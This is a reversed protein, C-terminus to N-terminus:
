AFVTQQTIGDNSSKEDLRDCYIGHDSIRSNSDGDMEKTSKENENTSSDNKETERFKSPKQIQPLSDGTEKKSTEQETETDTFYKKETDRFKSPNQIESLSDGVYPPKYSHNNSGLIKEIADFFKTKKQTASASSGTQQFKYLYSRYDRVTFGAEELGNAIVDWILQKTTKTNSLSKWNDILPLKVQLKKGMGVNKRSQRNKSDTDEVNNEM